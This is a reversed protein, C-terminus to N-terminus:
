GGPHRGIVLNVYGLPGTALTIRVANAFLIEIESQTPRLSVDSTRANGMLDWRLIPRDKFETQWCFSGDYCMNSLLSFVDM